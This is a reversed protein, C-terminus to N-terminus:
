PTDEWDFRALATGIRDLERQDSRCRPCRDGSPMGHRAARCAVIYVAAERLAEVAQVLAAVTAPTLPAHGNRIADLDIRTDSM